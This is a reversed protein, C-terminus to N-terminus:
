EAKPEEAAKEGEGEAAAGTADEAVEVETVLPEEEKMPAGITIILQEPDTLITVDSPVKLHSVLIHDGIETLTSIDVTISEPIDTPLAEVEVEHLNIDLVALGDKVLQVEGTVELPVNATVKEKLNVQHFDIHQKSGSVPNMTVAKVLTPREKDEGELKLWILSTEGAGKYVRNFEVESVQIAQSDVTRGFVNAPIIGQRRLKKVKSGLLARKDAKLVFKNM